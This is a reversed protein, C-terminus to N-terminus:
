LINGTMEKEIGLVIKRYNLRNELSYFYISDNEKDIVKELELKCKLLKGESIEGEFVSNQVWMFYKKLIKRVKNLREEGIDYTVILYPM